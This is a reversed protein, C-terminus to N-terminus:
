RVSTALLALAAAGVVVREVVFPKFTMTRVVTLVLWVAVAGTLASATIGWFFAWGAGPPLPDGAAIVGLGEYAGAGAILPLSMLFSIRAAADRTLGLRRGATITIGSRSVGPFLAAAQCIGMVVADRRRFDDIRREGTSRDAVLLVLGFVVLLTATLAISDLADGALSDLLAGAIGAPIASALLLWAVREDITDITRRRLSTWAAAGLRRIDRRLYATAGVLTGMHLAVDFTRNLDANAGTLEDWGFFWPVLLLHGSSSIPLFESLGQTIGLVIAHLVPIAEPAGGAASAAAALSM